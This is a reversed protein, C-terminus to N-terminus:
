RVETQRFERTFAPKAHFSPESGDSFDVLLPGLAAFEVPLEEAHGRHACSEVDEGGASDVPLARMMFVLHVVNDAALRTEFGSVLILGNGGAAHEKDGGFNLVVEVVDGFFQSRQNEESGRLTLNRNFM